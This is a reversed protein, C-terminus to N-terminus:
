HWLVPAGAVTGMEYRFLAGGSAVYVDECDLAGAVCEAGDEALKM